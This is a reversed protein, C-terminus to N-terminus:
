KVANEVAQWLLETTKDWSYKEAQQRGKIIFENRKNEDKFLLMMKDAIDNFDDPNIYLAADGCIEPMAAKNSTIVPVGAQMAELASTCFGEYFVPYVFAYAAATIAAINEASLNELLRVESKYKYSAFSQTFVADTIARTTAFVLLMNSQQRKKFFSFAKLLNVLNKNSHIECTYLFYEKGATNKEKIAEKQQWNVPIFIENIGQYVVDIKDEKIKYFNIVDQKLFQSATVVVKAKNFFKPMNKKYFRFWNRTFFHPHHLFSLDNVMLCQPVKTRLSCNGMSFFIDVKHKRLLAPVKYNLWYQLLLPNKIKPGATVPIINKSAIYKKNVPKDSLFLFHHQPIKKALRSFCEVIFIGDNALHDNDLFCANVAITM